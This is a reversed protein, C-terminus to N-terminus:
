EPLHLPLVPPRGFYQFFSQCYFARIDNELQVVQPNCLKECMVVNLERISSWARDPIEMDASQESIAKPCDRWSLMLHRLHSLTGVRYLNNSHLVLSESSPWSSVAISSQPGFVREVLRMRDIDADDKAWEAAAAVRDLAFVEYRWNMEALEWLIRRIDRQTIGVAAGHTVPFTSGHFQVEPVDLHMRAADDRGFMLVASDMAKTVKDNADGPLAQAPNFDHRNALWFFERWRGASLPPPLHNLPALVQSRRVARIALWVTIAQLCKAEGFATLMGPDPYMYGTWEKCFDSPRPINRNVKCLADFWAPNHNPMLPHSSPEWKSRNPQTPKHLVVPKVESVM